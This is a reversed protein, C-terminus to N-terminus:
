QDIPSGSSDAPISAGGARGAAGCLPVCAHFYTWVYQIHRCIFPQGCLGNRVWVGATVSSYNLGQHVKWPVTHHIAEPGFIGNHWRDPRWVTVQKEVSLCVWTCVCAISRMTQISRANRPMRLFNTQPNLIICIWTYQSDASCPQYRGTTIEQTIIYLLNVTIYDTNAQKHKWIIYTLTPSPILGCYQKPVSWFTDTNQMQMLHRNLNITKQVWNM